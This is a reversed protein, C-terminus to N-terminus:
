KISLDVHTCKVRKIEWCMHHAFDKATTCVEDSNISIRRLVTVIGMNVIM